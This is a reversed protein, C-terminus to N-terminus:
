AGDILRSRIPAFLAFLSRQSKAGLKRYIRLTHNKVTGKSIGMRQAITGTATGSVLGRLVDLERKSLKALATEAATIEDKGSIVNGPPVLRYIWGNPAFSFDDSLREGIMVSQGATMRFNERSASRALGEAVAPSTREARKWGSSAYVRKRSRDLILTPHQLGSETAESPARLSAL